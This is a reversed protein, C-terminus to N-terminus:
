NCWQTECPIGDRNGDMKTGPCNNQYFMAEDCSRMESCYIKGACSFNNNIKREPQTAIKPTSLAIHTENKMFFKNYIGVGGLTLLIIPLVTSVWTNNNQKRSSNRKMQPQIEAVGEIRANVARIKGNNDTHMQYHIVDGVVPRRGLRKLASIHIFMDNKQSESEIFGFGKDENWRKLRGKHFINDM